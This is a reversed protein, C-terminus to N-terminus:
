PAILTDTNFTLRSSPRRTTVRSSDRGRRRAGLQRAPMDRM